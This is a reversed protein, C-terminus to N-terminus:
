ALSRRYAENYMNCATSNYVLSACMSAVLSLGATPIAFALGVANTAIHGAAEGPPTPRVTHGRHDTYLQMTTSLNSVRSFVGSNAPLIM